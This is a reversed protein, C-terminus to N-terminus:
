QRGPDCNVYRVLESIAGMIHYLSSALAGEDVFSGDERRKDRFLGPADPAIFLQIGRWADMAAEEYIERADASLRAMALAAKMRETQPWMRVGADKVGGEIWLEGLALSRARDLGHRDATEYLGRIVSVDVTGGHERWRALLWAWEFQHGPEVIRGREGKKPTWDAGFYELLAPGAPDIFRFVCLDAIEQALERWVPQPDIDLWALAAEFLHMHPNALLLDDCPAAEYFGGLPHMRERRLAALVMQAVQRYREAPAVSYAHALAFVAFAQDYNDVREDCPSGDMHTTFRMFGDPRAHYNLMFSVGSHARERWPGAWGLRGAEVFVYSQRAQVRCRKPLTIAKGDLAIQEFFGGHAADHGTNAWLPLVDEFVWRTAAAAAQDLGRVSRRQLSCPHVQASAGNM